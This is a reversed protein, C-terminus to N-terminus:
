ELVQAASTPVVHCTGWFAAEKQVVFHVQESPNHKETPDM